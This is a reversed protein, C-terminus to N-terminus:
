NVLESTFARIVNNAARQGTKYAGTVTAMTTYKVGEIIETDATHEGAFWIGGHDGEGMIRESLIKMNGDGSECGVPVHTYSGFGSYPDQSWTSSDIELLQCAPNEADYNPLHPIYLTQLIECLEAPHLAVLAIALDTSVFIGFVPHPNHIRSLSFFNLTGPPLHWPATSDRSSFRYFELGPQHPNPSIDWWPESFRIFLKELVGVGLNSIAKRVPPPLPPTFTVTNSKLVGLPLTVIVSDAHFTEGSTSTLTIPRDQEENVDISCIRTDFKILNASLAPHAIYQV